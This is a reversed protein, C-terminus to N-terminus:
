RRSVLQEFYFLGVSCFQRQFFNGPHWTAQRLPLEFPIVRRSGPRTIIANSFLFVDQRSGPDIFDFSYRFPHLLTFRSSASFSANHLYSCVISYRKYNSSIIPRWDYSSFCSRWTFGIYRLVKDQFFCVFLVLYFSSIFFLFCAASYNLCLCVDSFFQFLFSHCVRISFWIFVSSPFLPFGHFDSIRVNGM